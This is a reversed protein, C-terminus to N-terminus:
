EGQKEALEAPKQPPRKVIELVVGTVDQTGVVIPADNQYDEGGRTGEFHARVRLSYSGPLMGKVEFSGDTEAQTWSRHSSSNQTFTLWLWRPKDNGFVRLDPM